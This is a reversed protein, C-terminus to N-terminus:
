PADGVVLVESLPNTFRHFCTTEAKVDMFSNRGTIAPNGKALSESYGSRLSRYETSDSPLKILKPCYTEEM